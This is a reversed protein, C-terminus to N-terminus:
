KKGKAVEREIERDRIDDALIIEAVIKNSVASRGPKVKDDSRFGDPLYTSVAFNVAAPYKERLTALTTVHTMIQDAVKQQEPKM